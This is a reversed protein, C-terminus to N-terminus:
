NLLIFVTTMFFLVLSFSCTGILDDFFVSEYLIKKNDTMESHRILKLLRLNFITLFLVMFWLVGSKREIAKCDM